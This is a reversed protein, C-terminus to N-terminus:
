DCVEDVEVDYRPDPFKLVMILGLGKHTQCYKLADNTSSFDRANALDQTWDGELKVFQGNTNKLLIRM